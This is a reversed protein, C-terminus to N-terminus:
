SSSKDTVRVGDSSPSLSRQLQVGVSWDSLTGEGSQGWALEWLLIESM